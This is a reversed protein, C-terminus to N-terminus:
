FDWIIKEEKEVKMAAGAGSGITVIKCWEGSKWTLQLMKGDMQKLMYIRTVKNTKPDIYIDWHKLPLSDPLVKVSDYTFTVANLSRDLFSRGVFLTVLNTSDIRPQLFGAMVSDLEEIKIWASDTHNNISTYKLPNVGAQKINYIEGELYDTVPFFRQKDLTDKVSVQSVTKEHNSCSCFFFCGALVAIIIKM